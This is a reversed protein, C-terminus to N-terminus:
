CHIMSSELLLSPTEMEDDRVQLRGGPLHRHQPPEGQPHIVLVEAEGRHREPRQEGAYHGGEASFLYISTLLDRTSLDCTSHESRMDAQAM